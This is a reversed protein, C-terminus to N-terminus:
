DCTGALVLLRVIPWEFTLLCFAMKMAKPKGQTFVEIAVDSTAAL